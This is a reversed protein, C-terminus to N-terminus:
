VSALVAGQPAMPREFLPRPAQSEQTSRFMSSAREILFRNKISSTREMLEKWDCIENIIREKHKMPLELLMNLYLDCYYDDCTPSFLGDILKMVFEHIDLGLTPIVDNVESYFLLTSVTRTKHKQRMCFEDYESVGDTPIVFMYGDCTYLTYLCRLITNITEKDFLTALDRLLMIFYKRYSGNTVAHKVMDKVVTDLNEKTVLFRLRNSIKQINSENLINWMSQFSRKTDRPQRDAVHPRRKEPPRVGKYMYVAQKQFCEYKKFVEDYKTQIHPPIPAARKQLFADKHVVIINMVM